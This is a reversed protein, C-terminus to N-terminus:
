LLLDHRNWQNEEFDRTTIHVGGSARRQVMIYQSRTGYDDAHPIRISSLRQELASGYGTEPLPIDSDLPRPTDDDLVKFLSAIISDEDDQNNLNLLRLIRSKARECKWSKEQLLTNSFVHVGPSLKTAQKSTSARYYWEGQEDGVLVNVGHYRDLELENTFEKASVDSTIFRPCIEGRSPPTSNLTGYLLTAAATAATAALSFWGMSDRASVAFSAAIISVIVSRTLSKTRPQHSIDRLNTVAAFKRYGDTRGSVACWQM